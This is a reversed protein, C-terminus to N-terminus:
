AKVECFLELREHRLYPDLIYLIDYRQGGIELWMDATVDQRYRLLVKHTTRTLQTDAVRGTLLSGTQPTVGAWVAAVAQEAAPYQGLADKEPATGLKKIVAKQNLQSSLADFYRMM